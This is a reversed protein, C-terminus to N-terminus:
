FYFKVALEILRNGVTALPYGNTLANVNTSSYVNNPGAFNLKDDNTSGNVGFVSNPHNLWNFAEIRFQLTRSEGLKFDKYLSLNSNFSPPTKIYPWIITGQTGPAPETFCSPNFYQGSSLGKRPDCTVLPVLLNNDTGLYSSNSVGSYTVGNITTGPQSPWNVNLDANTNPQLPAGSQFQNQTELVWGNVAGM